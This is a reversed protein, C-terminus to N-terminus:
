QEVQRPLPAHAQLVLPQVVGLDVEDGDADLVAELAFQCFAPILTSVSRRMEALGDECCSCCNSRESRGAVRASYTPWSFTRPWSSIKMWAALPLLSASSWASSNPGGPRPLVVSACMMARSIPTLRRWVEPGTSSRGPSRAAMRVLRSGFSTRNM